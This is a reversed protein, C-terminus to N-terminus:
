TLSREISHVHSGLNFVHKLPSEFILSAMQWSGHPQPIISPVLCHPAQFIPLPCFAPTVPCLGTLLCIFHPGYFPNSQIQSILGPPLLSAVVNPELSLPIFPIQWMWLCYQCSSPARVSYWKRQRAAASASEEWVPVPFPGPSVQRTSARWPACILSIHCM